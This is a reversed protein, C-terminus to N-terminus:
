AGTAIGYFVTHCVNMYRVELTLLRICMCFFSKQENQMVSYQSKCIFMQFNHSFSLFSTLEVSVINRLSNTLAPVLNHGSGLQAGLWQSLFLIIGVMLLYLISDATM